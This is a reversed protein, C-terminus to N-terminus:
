STETVESITISRILLSHICQLTVVAFMSQIKNEMIFIIFPVLFDILNM